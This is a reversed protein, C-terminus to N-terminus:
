EVTIVTRLYRVLQPTGNDSAQLVFHITQGPLADAPVTFTTRASSPDDVSLEGEYTGVPFYWWKLSLEDGDPDSAKAKITVTEGPAALIDFPGTLEPYHNADEYDPTVSWKM